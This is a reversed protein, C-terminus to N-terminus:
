KDEGTYHKIIDRSEEGARQAREGIRRAIEMGVGNGDNTVTSANVVAARDAKYEAKIADKDGEYLTDDIAQVVSPLIEGAWRNEMAEFIEAQAATHQTASLMPITDWYASSGAPVATFYEAKPQGKFVEGAETGYDMPFYFCNETLKRLDAIDKELQASDTFSVRYKSDTNELTANIARLGLTSGGAMKQLAKIESLSPQLNFTKYIELASLFLNSPVELLHTALESEMEDACAKLAEIFESQARKCRNRTVTRVPAIAEAYHGQENKYQESEARIAGSKIRFDNLADRVEQQYNSLQGRLTFLAKQMKRNM